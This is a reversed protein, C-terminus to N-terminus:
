PKEWVYTHFTEGDRGYGPHTAERRAGIVELWRHADVHGEMSKCEMRHAGHEWLMPVIGRIVFKTMGIGIKHFDNTAFMWLGWVGRWMPSCGLAAVPKDGLWAMWAVPGARFVDELLGDGTDSDLRTAFIERRDWERMNDIVYRVGDRELETIRM